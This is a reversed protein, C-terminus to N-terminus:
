PAAPPSVSQLLTPSLLTWLQRTYYAAGEENLHTPDSFCRNPLLWCDPGLVTINPQRALPASLTSVAQPRAVEGHRFYRPVFIIKINHRRALSTIRDLEEGAPPLTRTFPKTPDDKQLSFDEPLRHGPYHSQAAIFYYGKQALMRQTQSRCEEYYARLGGRSRARIMFLVLNRPLKRFPFLMEMTRRDDIGPKFINFSKRTEEDWPFLLLVHTPREGRLCLSELNAVFRLYDPLGLNYSSVVGGSLADFLEPQFGTLVQSNGFIVLKVPANSRFLSATHIARAKAAYVVEAGPGIYPLARDVLFFVLWLAGLLGIGNSLDRRFGRWARGPIDQGKTTNM